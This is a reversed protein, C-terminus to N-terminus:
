TIIPHSDLPSPEVYRLQMSQKTLKTLRIKNIRVMLRLQQNLSVGKVSYSTGLIAVTDIWLLEEEVQQGSDFSTHSM